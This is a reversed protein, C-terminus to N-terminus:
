FAFFMDEQILIIVYSSAESSNNYTRDRARAGMARDISDHPHVRQAGGRHATAIIQIAGGQVFVGIVM